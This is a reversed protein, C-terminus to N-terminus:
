CYKVLTLRESKFHFSAIINLTKDYELFCIVYPILIEQLPRGSYINFSKIYQHNAPIIITKHDDLVHSSVCTLGAHKIQKVLRPLKSALSWIKIQDYGVNSILLKQKPLYSLCNVYKMEGIHIRNVIKKTILSFIDIYGDNFGVVVLKEEEILIMSLGMGGRFTKITGKLEYSEVDWLKIDPDEGGSLLINHKISYIIKRVINTHAALKVYENEFANSSLKRVQITKDGGSSLLTNKHQLFCFSTVFSEHARIQQIKQFTITDWLSIFGDKADGVVLRNWESIFLIANFVGNHNTKISKVYQFNKHNM